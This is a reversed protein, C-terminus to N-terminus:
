KKAKEAKEAEKKAQKEAKEREKAEKQRRKEAEKQDKELQKKEKKERAEREKPTENSEPVGGGREKLVERVADFFTQEVNVRTKASTELFKVGFEKALEKGEANSIERSELDCKNGVLVIPASDCDKVRLIQERFTNIEEFSSRDVISYVLIYGDGTSMYQDRMSKFEEQGATDLIELNHTEGDVSM